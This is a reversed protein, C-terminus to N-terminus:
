LVKSLIDFMKAKIQIIGTELPKLNLDSRNAYKMRDQELRNLKKRLLRLQEVNKALTHFQEIMQRTPRQPNM